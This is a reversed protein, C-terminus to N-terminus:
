KFDDSFINNKMKPVLIAAGVKLGILPIPLAPISFWMFPNYDLKTIEVKAIGARVIGLTSAALYSLDILLRKQHPGRDTVKVIVEADNAPNRVKLYTGFPLTRHACTMSDPHYKGGDSTHNGSLNSNYYSANGTQVQANLGLCMFLFAFGIFYFVKIMQFYKAVFITM